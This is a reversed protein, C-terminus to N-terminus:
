GRSPASRESLRQCAFAAFGALANMVRVDEMDFEVARSHTVIWITGSDHTAGRIPLVLGEIIPPQAAALCAFHRAPEDFLQATGRDLTVGCPSADRPTTGGVFDRYRGALAVWRFLTTGGSEELLSIGASDAHCLSRAGELFAQLQDLPPRLLLQSFHRFALNEATLSPARACRRHLVETKL